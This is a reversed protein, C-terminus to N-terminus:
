IPYPIPVYKEEIMRQAKTAVDRRAEETACLIPPLFEVEVEISRLQFAKWAMKVFPTPGHWFVDDRWRHGMPEGNVKRFNIVAPLIEIGTGAAATMLTKKFPYIKEGSHAAAEPFLVVNLGQMLAERIVLIEKHINARNRRDVFLCGGMETLVGLGPTGKMDLSTIFLTPLQSALVYIDIFSTHNCVVLYNKGIDQKPRNIVTQRVGLAASCLGAFFKTIHAYCRRRFVFDRVFIKVFLSAVVFGAIAMLTLIIKIIARILNMIQIEVLFCLERLSKM